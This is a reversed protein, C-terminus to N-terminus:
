ENSDFIQKKQGRVKNFEDIYPMFNVPGVKMFIIQGEKAGGGASKEDAM